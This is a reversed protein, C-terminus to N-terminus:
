MELLERKVKMSAEEDGMARLVKFKELLGKLKEARHITDTESKIRNGEIWKKAQLEVDAMQQDHNAMKTRKSSEAERAASEAVDGDVPVGKVPGAWPLDMTAGRMRNLDGISVSVPGSWAMLPPKTGTIEELDDEVAKRMEDTADKPDLVFTSLQMAPEAPVGAKSGCRLNYGRPHVTDLAEIYISENHSLADAPCRMLVSVHM